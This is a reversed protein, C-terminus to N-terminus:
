QTHLVWKYIQGMRGGRSEKEHEGITGRELWEKGRM